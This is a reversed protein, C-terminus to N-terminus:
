LNIKLNNWEKLIRHVNRSNEKSKRSNEGIENQCLYVEPDDGEEIIAQHLKQQLKLKKEVSIWTM